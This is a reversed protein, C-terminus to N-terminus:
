RTVHQKINYVLCMLVIERFERNIQATATTSARQHDSTTPADVAVHPSPEHLQASQRLLM